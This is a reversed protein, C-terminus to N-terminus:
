RTSRRAIGLAKVRSALTTAPVGLIEAAGGRGYIRGGTRALAAEVNARERHRWEAAPIVETDPTATSARSAPALEFRLRGDRALIVAREVASALERVNGPWPHRELARLDRSTVTFRPRGLRACAAHLFHEVLRAVDGPRERLPPVQIPFVSLRFYLDQRFRGAAVEAALDRNTAAVVRVDVQRTREEGVRQLEGDQLVRLLKAQLDLPIEGVEDLFLTGGDAAEFRGVRDQTAGTFAGKVHGFFESEFLERPIAACNVTIFPREARGSRAHVRRAVLEKGTGSEGLVLVSAGTPAVLEVQEVTKALAPSTGVVDGGGLARAADERLYRNEVELRVRLREIEEFARANAIAVAAHDAFARLWAFAEADIRTRSFVALVGLVEGRFVLPQAAFSRIGERAAWQPRVIWTSRESMDHLLIGAGTAGVKGVKRVGLPFRRFTGDLGSWTVGPETPRGASAVLHLCRTREVCEAQMHCADCIDGDEILWVRTLAVGEQAGVVDAIRALAVDLWREQAVAIAVAQLAEPRM